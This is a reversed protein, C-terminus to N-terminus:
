APTQSQGFTMLIKAFYRLLLEFGRWDRGAAGMILVRRPTKGRAGQESSSRARAAAPM